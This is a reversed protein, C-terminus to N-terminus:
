RMNERMLQFSQKIFYIFEEETLIGDQNIDFNSYITDFGELIINDLIEKKSDFYNYTLGKSIGAKKAIQSISTAHFGNEAFLELATELILDKKQKRIDDYQEASRPSM